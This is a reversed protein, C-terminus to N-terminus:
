YSFISLVFCTVDQEIIQLVFTPGQFYLEGGLFYTVNLQDFLRHRPLPCIQRVLNHGHGLCMLRGQAALCLPLIYFM